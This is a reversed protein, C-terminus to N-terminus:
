VPRNSVGNERPMGTPDRREPKRNRLCEAVCGVEGTKKVRRAKAERTKGSRYVM